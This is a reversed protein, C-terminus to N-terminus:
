STLTTRLIKNLKKSQFNNSQLQSLLSVGTATCLFLSSFFSNWILVFPYQGFVCHSKQATPKKQIGTSRNEAEMKNNWSFVVLRQTSSRGHSTKKHKPLRMEAPNGHMQRLSVPFRNKVLSFLIVDANAPFQNSCKYLLFM